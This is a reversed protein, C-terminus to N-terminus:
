IFLDVLLGSIEDVRELIALQDRQDKLMEETLEDLTENIRKISAITKQKGRSDMMRNKSFSFGNSVSEHMFEAILSRYKNLEKIDARKVVIEGQAQIKSILDQIHSEFMVGSQTTLHRKFQLPDITKGRKDETLPTKAVDNVMSQIDRIKM